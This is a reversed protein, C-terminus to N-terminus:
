STGESNSRVWSAARTEKKERALFEPSSAAHVSLDIADRLHLIAEIEAPTRLQRVALRESMMPACAGASQIHARIDAQPHM